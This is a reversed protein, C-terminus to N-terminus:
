KSEIRRNIFELNGQLSTMGTPDVLKEAIWEKMGVSTQYRVNPQATEAIEVILNAIERSPQGRPISLM